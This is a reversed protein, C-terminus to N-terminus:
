FSPGGYGFHYGLSGVMWLDLPMIEGMSNSGLFSVPDLVETM